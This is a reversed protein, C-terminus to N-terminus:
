DKIVHSKEWIMRWYFLLNELRILGDRVLLDRLHNSQLFTQVGVGESLQPRRAHRKEIRKDHLKPIEESKLELVREFLYGDWMENLKGKLKIAAATVNTIPWFTPRFRNNCLCFNWPLLSRVLWVLTPQSPELLPKNRPISHMTAPMTTMSINRTTLSSSCKGEDVKDQSVQPVSVLMKVRLVKIVALPSTWTRWIDTTDLAGAMKSVKNDFTARKPTWSYEMKVITTEAQEKARKSSSSSSVRPLCMMSSVADIKCNIWHKAWLVSIASDDFLDQMVRKWIIALGALCTIVKKSNLLETRHAKSVTIVCFQIECSSWSLNKPTRAQPM